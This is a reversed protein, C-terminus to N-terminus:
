KKNGKEYYEGIIEKKGNKIYIFSENPLCIIPHIKSVEEVEKICDNNGIDYHPFVNIDTLNLGEYDKIIYDEFDDKYIVRNGQNMSGASVGIVINVKSIFNGLELENIFKIQLEPSGGLLFVINSNKICEKADEKAKRGDIFYINNFSIGIKSFFAVYRDVQEDTREYNGPISAIFTINMGSFVNKLLYEKQTESFGINKKVQSFLYNVM